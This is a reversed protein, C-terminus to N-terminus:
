ETHGPSSSRDVFYDPAAAAPRAEPRCDAMATRVILATHLWVQLLRQEARHPMAFFLQGVTRGMSRVLIGEALSGGLAIHGRYVGLPPKQPADAM